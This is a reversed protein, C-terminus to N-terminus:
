VRDARRGLQDRHRGGGQGSALFVGKVVPDEGVV